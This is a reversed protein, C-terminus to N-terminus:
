EWRHVLITGGNRICSLIFKFRELAVDRELYDDHVLLIRGMGGRAYESIKRYRVKSDGIPPLADLASDGSRPSSNVTEAPMKEARRKSSRDDNSRDEQM